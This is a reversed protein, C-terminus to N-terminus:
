QTKPARQGRHSSVDFESILGHLFMVSHVIPITRKYKSRREYIM